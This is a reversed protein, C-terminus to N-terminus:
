LSAYRKLEDDFAARNPTARNLKEIVKLIGRHLHICRYQVIRALRKLHRSIFENRGSQLCVRAWFRKCDHAERVFYEGYCIILRLWQEREADPIGLKEFLILALEKSPKLADAEIRRLTVEACGVQDALAQRTLDLIRRQKRLWARFSIDGTRDNDSTVIKTDSNTYM